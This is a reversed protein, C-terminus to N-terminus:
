KFFKVIYKWVARIANSLNIVFREAFAEVLELFSQKEEIMGLRVTDGDKIVSLYVDKYNFESEDYDNIIYEPMIGEFNLEDFHIYQVDTNRLLNCICSWMDEFLVVKGDFALMPKDKDEKNVTFSYPITNYGQSNLTNCAASDKRALIQLGDNKPFTYDEIESNESSVCIVKLNDCNQFVRKGVYQVNEPIVVNTLGTCNYFAIDGIRSVTSPIMVGTIKDNYYLAARAIDKTGYDVTLNGKFTIKVDLLHNGIYLVDNKWNSSDDYYGTRTFAEAGIYIVTDPLTIKKLESCGDFAYDGVRIMGDNIIIGALLNCNEFASDAITKTGPKIKYVSDITKNAAIINSKIYLVNNEWNSPNNFYASNNFAYSGISMINDYMEISSLGTCGYFAIKGVRTISDPFTVGTINTCNEFASEAITITGDEVAISGAVSKKAAILHSGIYLVDERWNSPDNYIGTGSFASSKIIIDTDPITIDVLKSCSSFAFIGIKLVSNPIIIKTLNTCAMFASNNIYSVGEPISINILSSCSEFTNDDICSINNSLAVNTLSTCSEFAYKGLEKVSNPVVTDKLGSCGSFAAYGIKTVSDPITISALNTCEYFSFSGISTVNNEIVVQKITNKRAFPSYYYNDSDEMDGSGSITLIGTEEDITYFVNDGCQGSKIASSKTSFDLWDLNINLDKIESMPAVSVLTVAVLVSSIIKKLKKRM